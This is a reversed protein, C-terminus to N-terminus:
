GINNHLTVRLNCNSEDRALNYRWTLYRIQQRHIVTDLRTLSTLDMEPLM